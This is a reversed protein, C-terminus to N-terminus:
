FIDQDSSELKKSNEKESMQIRGIQISNGEPNSVGSSDQSKRVPSESKDHRQLIQNSTQLM